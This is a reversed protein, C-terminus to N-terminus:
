GTRRVRTRCAPPPPPRPTPKCAGPQAHLWRGGSAAMCLFRRPLGDALLRWSPQQAVGRPLCCLLLCCSAAMWGGRSSAEFHYPMEKHVFIHVFLKGGPKLWSSVQPPAGAESKM